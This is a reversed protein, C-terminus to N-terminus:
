NDLTQISKFVEDLAICLNKTDGTHVKNIGPTTICELVFSNISSYLLGDRSNINTISIHNADLPIPIVDSRYLLKIGRLLSAVLSGTHPTSLFVVGKTREVISTWRDDGLDSASRLMQKVLLGGMSHTIFVIPHASLQHNVGLLELVNLARDVLPMAAGKWATSEVEYGVSWIGVEPFDQGLCIPLSFNKDREINWTTKADGNLGHVFVVNGILDSKGINLIPHIESM